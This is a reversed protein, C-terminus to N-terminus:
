AFSLCGRNEILQFFIENKALGLKMQAQCLEAGAQKLNYKWILHTVYKISMEFM